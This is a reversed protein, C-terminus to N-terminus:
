GQQEALVEKVYAPNARSIVFEVTGVYYKGDEGQFLIEGMIDSANCADLSAGAAEILHQTNKLDSLGENGDKLWKKIKIFKSM